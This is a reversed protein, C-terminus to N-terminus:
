DLEYSNKTQNFLTKMRIQNSYLDFSSYNYAVVENFVNRVFYPEADEKCYKKVIDALEDSTVDDIMGYGKGNIVKPYDFEKVIKVDRIKKVKINFNTTSGFDYEYTFNQKEEFNVEKLKVKTANKMETIKHEVNSFKPDNLFDYFMYEADDYEIGCSYTTNGIDFNFLHYCLSNFSVLIAYSLDAVTKDEDLEIERWIKKELGEIGINFSYVKSM